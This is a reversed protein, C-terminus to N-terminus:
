WTVMQNELVFINCHNGKLHLITVYSFLARKHSSKVNRVFVLIERLLSM